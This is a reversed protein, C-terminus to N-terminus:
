PAVRALCAAIARLGEAVRPGPRMITERVREPFTCIRHERVAKIGAWGPREALHPAAARSIFIVDPDRRVVYEPNLLPFPGLKAAVINRVGLKALLGGIYSDPGAAYPAPDVEFYVKPAPGRRQAMAADAVARVQARIRANLAAARQPVGLLEGVIRVTRAIDAYRDTEIAFSAIGLERLRAGVRQSNSLLVLDPRLAVIREINVEDLDGVKPLRKVSPPWDDFRGVAVLRNCAGLACVTETLSPLLTIIRRPDHPVVVSRNSDDRLVVAGAAAQAFVGYAFAACALVGIMAPHRVRASASAIGIM